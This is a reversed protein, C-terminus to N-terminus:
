LKLLIIHYKYIKNIHLFFGDYEKQRWLNTLNDM